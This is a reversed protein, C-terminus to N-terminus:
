KLKPLRALFLNLTNLVRFQSVGKQGGVRTCLGFWVIGWPIGLVWPVVAVQSKRGGSGERGGRLEEVWGDRVGATNLTRGSVNHNEHVRRCSPSPAAARRRSRLARGRRASTQNTRKFKSHLQTEEDEDGLRQGDREEPKTRKSNQVVVVGLFTKQAASSSASAADALRLGGGPCRRTLRSAGCGPQKTTRQM